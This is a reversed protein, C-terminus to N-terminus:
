TVIAIREHVNILRASNTHTIGNVYLYINLKEQSQKRFFDEPSEFHHNPAGDDVRCPIRRQRPLTPEGTLEHAEHVVSSYFSKFALDDRQRELFRKAANVATLVEQANINKYQLTKSLQEM